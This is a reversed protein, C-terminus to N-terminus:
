AVDAVEESKNRLAESLMALGIQGSLRLGGTQTEATMIIDDQFKVVVRCEDESMRQAEIRFLERKKDRKRMGIWCHMDEGAFRYFCIGAFQRLARMEGFAKEIPEPAAIGDFGSPLTGVLSGALTTM